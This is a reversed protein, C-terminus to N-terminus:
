VSGNEEKILKAAHAAVLAHIWIPMTNNDVVTISYFMNIDTITIPSVEVVELASLDKRSVVSKVYGGLFLRLLANNSKPLSISESSLQKATNALLSIHLYTPINKLFTLAWWTRASSYDQASKLIKDYFKRKGVKTKLAKLENLAITHSFLNM